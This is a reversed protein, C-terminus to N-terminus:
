GAEIKGKRTGRATRNQTQVRLTGQDAIGLRRRGNM